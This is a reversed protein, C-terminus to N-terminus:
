ISAQSVEYYERSPFPVMSVACSSLLSDAAKLTKTGVNGGQALPPLSCNVNPSTMMSTNYMPASYSVQQESSNNLLTTTIVQPNTPSSVTVKSDRSGPSVVMQSTVTNTPKAAPKYQNLLKMEPEQKLELTQPEMNNMVINGPFTKSNKRPNQIVHYTQQGQLQVQVQGQSQGQGTIWPGSSNSRRALTVVSTNQIQSGDPVCQKRKSRAPPASQSVITAGAQQLLVTNPDLMTSPTFRFFFCTVLALQMAPKAKALKCFPPKTASIFFYIM